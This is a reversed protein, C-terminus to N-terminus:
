RTVFNMLKDPVYIVDAVEAQQLYKAVNPLDRARREIEAASLGPQVTLEGRVKGNVQVPITMAAKALVKQNLKPWPQYILTQGHGLKEWLEEAVHPAYPGLMLVFAELTTRTLPPTREFVNLLEMLASIATNFRLNETSESVRRITQHLALEVAENEIKAEQERDALQDAQATMTRWVRDLFRRAGRIGGTGWAASVEFPGMFMEYIRLTDAGFERVVEDPNIVNGRSKSMKQGDEGLVLGVSRFRKFPEDEYVVNDDFLAKQWFRAYLLHLVAHEAGGVYLDVPLWKKMSAPDAVGKEYQPSTYRLWYWSSGAWQPMTNTERKGMGPCTPCKVNVWEEVAALPSEGTDTPEYREVPPLTVPLDKKPVPVAGCKDCHIIPIPEGWYRQRSFVWDRLKYQVARRAQGRLSLAKIISEQAKQSKQGDFKGSNTLVGSGMYPLDADAALDEPVIVPRIPLKYTTAFEFDREDHAPVAMIAGSGYAMLVYDAVWIPVKQNNIPNIAYTGTFVGTKEKGAEPDLRVPKLAERIYAEVEARHDPATIEDVDPHGPSLVVYTAGFLTDPRTTFVNLPKRSGEVAFTVDTGVSRGIWNHQLEKIFNPWDLGGLGDLLRDAYKTIRLLWQRMPRIGVATGCRECHGDVVEENALGTKCSPCWNIPVTDQYALGMRYLRLFISQTWRYYDPDSTNVERSWDYSFGIRQMQQRFRAINQKTLEAPHIGKKIATNETPLGFADWGTPHLVNFGKMRLYRSIVDSATYIKVHGVHLGDGSPYPFMDLVYMKRRPTVEAPAFVHEKLWRKQWKSEIAQPDYVQPMYPVSYVNERENALLFVGGCAPHAVYDRNTARSM